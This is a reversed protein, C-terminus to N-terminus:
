IPAAAFRVPLVTAGVGAEQVAAVQVGFVVQLQVAQLIMVTGFLDQQM